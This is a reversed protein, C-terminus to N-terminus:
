RFKSKSKRYDSWLKGDVYGKLSITLYSKLHLDHPLKITFKNGEYNEKFKKFIIDKVEDPDDFKMNYKYHDFIDDILKLIYEDEIELSMNTSNKKM